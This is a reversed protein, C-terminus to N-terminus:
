VHSTQVESRAIFTCLAISQSRELNKFRDAIGELINSAVQKVVDKTLDESVKGIAFKM